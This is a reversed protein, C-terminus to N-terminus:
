LIIDKNYFYPDYHVKMNKLEPLTPVENSEISIMDELINICKQITKVKKDSLDQLELIRYLVDRAYEHDYVIQDSVISYYLVYGSQLYTDGYRVLYLDSLNELRYLDKRKLKIFNLELNSSQFVSQIYKEVVKRKEHYAIINNEDDIVCFM